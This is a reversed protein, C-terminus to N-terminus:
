SFYQWKKRILFIWIFTIILLSFTGLIGKIEGETNVTGAKLVRLLNVIAQVCSVAAFLYLIYVAWKKWTWIGIIGVLALINILLTVIVLPNSWGSALNFIIWRFILQLAGFTSLILLITLVIGRDKNM